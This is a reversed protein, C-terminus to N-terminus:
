QQYAKIFREIQQASLNQHIHVDGLGMPLILTITKGRHKKDTFMTNVIEKASYPKPLSTPLNFETLLALMRSREPMGTMASAYALGVAVAQGHPLQYHSLTEFAHGFTHGLNLLMRQNHEHEDASVVGAKVQVNMAIMKELTRLDREQIQRAHKELWVFLTPDLVGHKIVEGMGNNFESDSLTQLWNPDIVVAEPQYITGVLNKGSPLDVGNKGGISSDVMALLTTPMHYLKVGRMYVSAVLGVMDGLVGGGVAILSTQRDCHLQALQDCIWGVNALSKHQEGGPVAIITQHRFQKKVLPLLQDDCVVIAEKPWAFRQAAKSQIVIPYTKSRAKLMIRM